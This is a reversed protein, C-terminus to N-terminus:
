LRRIILGVSDDKAYQTLVNDLTGKSIFSLVSSTNHQELTRIVGRLLGGSSSIDTGYTPAIVIVGGKEKTAYDTDKVYGSLVAGDESVAREVIDKKINELTGKAIFMHSNDNKYSDLSKAQCYLFGQTTMATAYLGAYTKFVGGTSSNAYDTNKVYGTLDVRTSGILEFTSTTTVWVYEDYVDPAASDKPVLYIIGKEGSEPLEQVVIVDFGVGGGAGTASIVNGSIIINDGATLQDQKTAIEAAQATIQTQLESDAENIDARLDILDEVRALTGGETPIAVDAGNNLKKAYVNDWPNSSTGLSVPNGTGNETNDIYIQQDGFVLNSYQKGNLLYEIAVFGNGVQRMRNTFGDPSANSKFSLGGVPPTSPNNDEESQITLIGTMTDGSKKVYGDLDIDKLDAKTALQNIASADGPIKEEIGSVQDGLSAQNGRLTTLESAHNNLIQHIESDAEIYDDRTKQIADANADIEANIVTVKHDIETKTYTDVSNFKEDVYERSAIIDTNVGLDVSNGNGILTNDHFVQEMGGARNAIEVMTDAQPEVVVDVNVEDTTIDCIAQTM